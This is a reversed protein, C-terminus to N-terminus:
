ARDLLINDLEVEWSVYRIVTPRRGFPFTWLLGGTMDSVVVRGSSTTWLESRSKAIEGHRYWLREELRGKVVAEVVTLFLSLTERDHTWDGSLSFAFWTCMGVTLGISPVGDEVLVRIGATNPVPSQIEITKGDGPHVHHRIGVGRGIAGAFLRQLLQLM